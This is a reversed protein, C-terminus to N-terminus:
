CRTDSERGQQHPSQGTACLAISTENDLRQVKVKIGMDDYHKFLKKYAKVYDPGSRSKMAITYVYNDYVSVLAYKNGTRSTTPFQGTLDSHNTNTYEISKTIVHTDAEGYNVDEDEDHHPELQVRKGRGKKPKTSRLNKRTLNLHGKASAETTTPNARVMKPTLQKLTSLYGRRTAKALTSQTPNGLTTRYYDVIQANLEHRVINNAQKKFKLDSLNIKWMRDEPEKAAEIVIDGDADTVTISTNDLAVKCGLQTLDVPALLSTHLDKDEFIHVPIDIAGAHVDAAGTSQITTSNPMAVVVEEVNETITHALERM